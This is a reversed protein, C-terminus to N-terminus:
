KKIFNDFYQNLHNMQRGSKNSYQYITDIKGDWSKLKNTLGISKYIWIIVKNIWFILKSISVILKSIM